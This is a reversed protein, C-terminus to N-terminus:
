DLPTSFDTFARRSQFKWAGDERVLADTYYGSRLLAPGGQANGAIWVWRSTASATDGEVAIEMNSMLHHAKPFRPTSNGFLDDLMKKIGAPTKSQGVGGSWEGDAAFLESYARTDRADLARGYALLLERIAEKDELLRLRDEVSTM